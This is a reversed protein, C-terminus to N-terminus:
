VVDDQDGLSFHFHDGHAEADLTKDSLVLAAVEDLYVTAGGDELVEDGEWPSSALAFELEAGGNGDTTGSIRLGGEGGAESEDLIGKIANAAQDTLVLM